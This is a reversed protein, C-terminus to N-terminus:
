GLAGSGKVPHRPKEADLAAMAERATPYEVKHGRDSSTVWSGISLQAVRQAKLTYVSAKVYETATWGEPM